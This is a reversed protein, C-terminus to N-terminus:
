KQAAVDIDKAISIMKPYFYEAVDVKSKLKGNHQWDFYKYLQDRFVYVIIYNPSKDPKLAEILTPERYKEILEEMTEGSRIFYHEKLVIPDKYYYLSIRSGKYIIKLFYAGTAVSDKNILYMDRDFYSMDMSVTWREYKDDPKFTGFGRCGKATYWIKQDTMGAAFLFSDNFNTIHRSSLSGTLSDGNETLIYGGTMKQGYVHIVPLCFLVFLLQINKM